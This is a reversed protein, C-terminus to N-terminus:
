EEQDIISESSIKVCIFQFIDFGIQLLQEFYEDKIPSDKSDIFEKLSTDEAEQAVDINLLKAGPGKSQGLHEIRGKSLKM